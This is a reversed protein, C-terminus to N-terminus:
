RGSEKRRRELEILILRRSEKDDVENAERFLALLEIGSADRLLEEFSM